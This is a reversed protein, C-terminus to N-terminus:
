GGVSRSPTFMKVVQAEMNPYIKKYLEKLTNPNSRDPSAYAFKGEATGFWNEYVWWDVWGTDGTLAELMKVYNEYMDDAITIDYIEIFPRMAVQIADCKSRYDELSKIYTKFTKYKLAAM